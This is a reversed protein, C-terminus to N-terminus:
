KFEFWAFAALVFTEIADGWVIVLKFWNVVVAVVVGFTFGVWNPALILMDILLPEEIVFAVAGVVDM